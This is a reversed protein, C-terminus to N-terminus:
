NKKKLEWFQSNLFVFCPNVKGGARWSRVTQYCNTVAGWRKNSFPFRITDTWRGTQPPSKRPCSNILNRLSNHQYKQLRSAWQDSPKKEVVMFLDSKQASRASWVRYVSNFRYQITTPMTGEEGETRRQGGRNVRSTLSLREEWKPLFCLWLCM